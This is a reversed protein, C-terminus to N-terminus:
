LGDPLSDRICMEGNGLTRRFNRRILIVLGNTALYALFHFGEVQYPRLTAQLQSPVDPKVDIQIEATCIHILSLNM